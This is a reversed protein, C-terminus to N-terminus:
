NSCDATINYYRPPPAVRLAALATKQAVSLRGVQRVECAGLQHIGLLLPKMTARLERWTQGTENEAVRVLLLALQCCRVAAFPGPTFSV